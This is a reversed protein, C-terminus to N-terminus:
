NVNDYAKEYDVKLVFCSKKERKSFDIFENVVLVGDLINTGLIFSTQNKSILNGLISKLQCVLLKALVKYLCGVLCIPRYESLFQPYKVKAILKLFSATSAKTLTTKSHFYKVFCFVDGKIVEWINKLFDFTYGDPGVSKRGDCSWVADKIETESFPEELNRNDEDSVYSFIIDEPIPRSNNSEKFFNEFHSLITEKVVKVGEVRGSHLEVANIFNRRFRDKISRHFFRSNHDGEKLWLEKSKYRM